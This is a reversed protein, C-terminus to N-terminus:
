SRRLFRFEIRVLVTISQNEAHRLTATAARVQFPDELQLPFILYISSDHPITDAPISELRRTRNCPTELFSFTDLWLGVSDSRIRFLLDKRFYIM